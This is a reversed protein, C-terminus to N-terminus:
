NQNKFAESSNDDYIFFDQVISIVFDIMEWVSYLYIALFFFPRSLFPVRAGFCTSPPDRSTITCSISQSKGQGCKPKTAWTLLRWKVRFLRLRSAPRSCSDELENEQSQRRTAQREDTPRDGWKWAWWVVPWTVARMRRKSPLSPPQNPLVLFIIAVALTFSLPSALITKKKNQTELFM